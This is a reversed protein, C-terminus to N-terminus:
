LDPSCCSSPHQQCPRLAQGARGRGWPEGREVEIEAAGEGDEQGREELGSWELSLQSYWMPCKKFLHCLKANQLCHIEHRCQSGTWESHQNILMRISIRSLYFRDLFYQINQNFVPDNGYADKYEIVGQAM